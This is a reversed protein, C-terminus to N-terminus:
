GLSVSGFAQPFKKKAAKLLDQLGGISGLVKQRAISHGTATDTWADMPIALVKAEYDKLIKWIQEMSKRGDAANGTMGAKIFKDMAPGLGQDFSKLLQKVKQNGPNSTKLFKKTDQWTKRLDEMPLPKTM